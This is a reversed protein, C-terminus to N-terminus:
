SAARGLLLKLDSGRQIQRMMEFPVAAELIDAPESRANGGIRTHVRAEPPPGALMQIEADDTLVEEARAVSLEGVIDSQIVRQHGAAYKCLDGPFESPPAPHPTFTLILKRIATQARSVV